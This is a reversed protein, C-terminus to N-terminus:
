IFRCYIKFNYNYNNKDNKMHPEEKELTWKNQAITPFFADGSGNYDVETIYLRNALPLM